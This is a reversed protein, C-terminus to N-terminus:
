PFHTLFWISSISSSLIMLELVEYILRRKFEVINTVSLCALLTERLGGGLIDHGYHSLLLLFSFRGRLLWSGIVRVWVCLFLHFKRRERTIKLMCTIRVRWFVLNIVAFNPVTHGIVDIIEWSMFYFQLTVVVSFFGAASALSKHFTFVIGSSRREFRLKRSLFIQGFIWWGWQVRQSM